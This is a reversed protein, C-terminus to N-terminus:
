ATPQLLVEFYKSGQPDDVPTGMFFMLYQWEYIVHYKTNKIPGESSLDCHSLCTSTKPPELLM